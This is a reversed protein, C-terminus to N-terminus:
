RSWGDDDRDHGRGGGDLKKSQGKSRELEGQEREYSQGTVREWAAERWERFEQM